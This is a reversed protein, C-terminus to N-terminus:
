SLIGLNQQKGHVIVQGQQTYTAAMSTVNCTYPGSDTVNVSHITLISFAATAQLLPERQTNTQVLSNTQHPSVAQSCFNLNVRVVHSRSSIGTQGPLVM